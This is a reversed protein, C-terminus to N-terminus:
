GTSDAKIPESIPNWKDRSINLFELLGSTEDDEGDLDSSQTLDDKEEEFSVDHFQISSVAASDVADGSGASGGGFDFTALPDVFPAFLSLAVPPRTGNLYTLKVSALNKKLSFSFGIGNLVYVKKDGLYTIAITTKDNVCNSEFEMNQLEYNIGDSKFQEVYHIIYKSGGSATVKEISTTYRLVRKCYQLLRNIKGLRDLHEFGKSVAKRGGILGSYLSAIAVVTLAVVVTVEVLTFAKRKKSLIM